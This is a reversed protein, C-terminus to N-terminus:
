SEIFRWIRYRAISLQMDADMSERPGNNREPLYNSDVSKSMPTRWLIFTYILMACDAYTMFFSHRTGSFQYVEVLLLGDRDEPTRLSVM